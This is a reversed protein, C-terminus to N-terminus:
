IKIIGKQIATTVAGTRDNVGLKSFINSVHTKVTSESLSLETAVEKNAKGQAILNLVERERESLADTVQGGGKRLAAFQDALRSGIDSQFYSNGKSVTRVANFLEDRSTDKLLFGKAGVEVADFIYEDTDFTTLVLFNIDPQRERIQRMAEVGDMEPMRLDMLILDPKLLEAQEVGQRGDGAEGVVEFDPQRQLMASLGDRVMTHDDVILIRTPAEDTSM